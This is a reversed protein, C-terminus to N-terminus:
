WTSPHQSTVNRRSLNALKLCLRLEQLIQHVLSQLVSSIIYPPTVIFVSKGEVTVNVSSTTDNSALVGEGGTPFVAATCTYFASDPIDLPSITLTSTFELRSTNTQSTTINPDSMASESDRTWTITVDFLNNVSADVSISCIIDLQTGRYFPGDDGANTSVSVRPAPVSLYLTTHSPYIIYFLSESTVIIDQSKNSSVNVMVSDVLIRGTCIYDGRDSTNLPSFNLKGITRSNSVDEAMKMEGSPTTWIISIYESRVGEETDLTCVLSYDGGATPVGETGIVVM